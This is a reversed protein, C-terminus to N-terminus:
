RGSDRRTKGGAFDCSKGVAAARAATKTRWTFALIITVSPLDQEFV